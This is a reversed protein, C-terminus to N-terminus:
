LGSLCDGVCMEKSGDMMFFIPQRHYLIEYLFSNTKGLLDISKQSTIGLFHPLAPLYPIDGVMEAITPVLERFHAQKFPFAVSVLGYFLSELAASNSYFFTQVDPNNV